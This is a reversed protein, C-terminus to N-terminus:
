DVYTFDMEKVVEPKMVHGIGSIKNIHFQSDDDDFCKNCFCLYVPYKQMKDSTEEVLQSLITADIDTLAELPIPIISNRHNRKDSM